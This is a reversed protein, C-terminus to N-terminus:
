LSNHWMKWYSQVIKRGSWKQTLSYVNNKLTYEYGNHGVGWIEWKAPSIWMKQGVSLGM